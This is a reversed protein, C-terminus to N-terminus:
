CRSMGGLVRELDAPRPREGRSVRERVEADDDFVTFFAVLCFVFGTLVAFRGLEDDDAARTVVCGTLLYKSSRSDLMWPRPPNAIRGIRFPVRIMSYTPSRMECSSASLRYSSPPM